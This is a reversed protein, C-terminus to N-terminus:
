YMPQPTTLQGVAHIEVPIGAGDNEISIEGKERDVVVKIVKMSADRQKNDAANVLIEDFIKYLGPVFTVKRLEMQTTESNYVTSILM